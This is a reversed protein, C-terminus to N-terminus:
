VMEAFRKSHKAFFYGGIVCILITMIIPVIALYPNQVVQWTTPVTDPAILNHRIDQITQAIPNLMVLQQVPYGAVARDALMSLPYIIPMAYFIVQTVVEWIPSIDRFKVYLTSLLLSLGLTLLFLQVLSLPVYIVNATFQIGTLIAIIIVVLLNILLSISASLMSSMVIIGKPFHIKRMIDGRGVVSQMAVGTAETFFSWLSIGLLLVVPYSKTGDTFKLFHVFVVYMVAFLMLPKLLSWLVGLFSGQYRLKFDTKVLEFLIIRNRKSFVKQMM